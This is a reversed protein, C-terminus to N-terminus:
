QAPTKNKSLFAKGLSYLKLWLPAFAAGLAIGIVLNLM